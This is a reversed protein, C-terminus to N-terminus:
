PNWGRTKSKTGEKRKLGGVSTFANGWQLKRINIKSHKGWIKKQFFGLTTRRNIYLHVM